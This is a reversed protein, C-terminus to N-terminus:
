MPGESPAYDLSACFGSQCSEFDRDFEEEIEVFAANHGNNCAGADTINISAFCADDVDFPFIPSAFSLLKNLYM